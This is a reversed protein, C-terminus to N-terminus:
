TGGRHGKSLEEGLHGGSDRPCLGWEQSCCLGGARREGRQPRSGRGQTGEAQGKWGGRPLRSRSSGPSRPRLAVLFTGPLTPCAPWGLRRSPELCVWLSQCPGQGHSHTDLVLLVTDGGGGGLPYVTPSLYPAPFALPSDQCSPPHLHLSPPRCAPHLGVSGARRGHRFCVAQPRVGLAWESSWFQGPCLALWGARGM